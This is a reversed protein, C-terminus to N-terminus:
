GGILQMTKCLWEASEGRTMVVSAGAKGDPCGLVGLSRLSSLAQMSWAPVSDVDAFASVATQNAYGIINSLIVAAEARTISENPAFVTRGDVIKGQIYGRTSALKVYGRMSEPIADNDDFGTHTNAKIGAADLVEENIGAVNMATVLFEVRSISEDPKFYCANGVQTGNMIGRSTIRIVSGAYVSDVIDVYEVSAPKGDVSISVTAATSYNGYRDRVVYQFEDKGTFSKDPTYVYAGTHKDSLTVRGSSAYRVIEFTLEDGEPDYASLTGSMPLDCYTMVSLALRPALSTTPTYNLKDTLCLRCNMEYGWGNVTFGVTAESPKTDDAAAYSLFSLNAASVTQGVAAGTSGVFLTGLSPDPLKTVTIYNLESMNMAREIDDATFSIENGCLGTFVLEDQAALVRLGHSVVSVETSSSSWTPRLSTTSSQLQESEHNSENIAVVSDAAAVPLASVALLTLTALIILCLFVGRRRHKTRTRIAKM